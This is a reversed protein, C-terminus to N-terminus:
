FDTQGFRRAGPHTRPVLGRDLAYVVLEARSSVGAKDFINQLHNKVTQESIGLRRAVEVNPLAEAVASVVLRERPTLRIEPEEESTTSALSRLARILDGVGNRGVWYEGAM